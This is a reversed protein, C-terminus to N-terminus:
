CIWGDSSVALEQRHMRLHMGFLGAAAANRSLSFDAAFAAAGEFGLSKHRHSPNRKNRRIYHRFISGLVRKNQRMERRVAESSSVRAIAAARKEADVLTQGVKAALPLLAQKLFVEIAPGEENAPMASRSIESLDFCAKVFGAFTRMGDQTGTGSSHFLVDCQSPSPLSCEAAALADNCFTRWVSAGMLPYMMVRHGHHASPHDESDMSVNETEADLLIEDGESGESNYQMSHTQMRLNSSREAYQNFLGGFFQIVPLSSQMMLEQLNKASELTQLITASDKMFLAVFTSTKSEAIVAGVSDETPHLTEEQGMMFADDNLSTNESGDIKGESVADEEEQDHEGEDVDGNRGAKESIIDEDGDGNDQLDQEEISENEKASSPPQSEETSYHDSWESELLPPSASGGEELVRASKGNRM